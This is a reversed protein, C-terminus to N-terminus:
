SEPFRPLAGDSFCRRIVAAIKGIDCELGVLFPTADTYLM